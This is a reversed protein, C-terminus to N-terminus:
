IDIPDITAHRQLEFHCLLVAIKRVRANPVANFFPVARYGCRLAGLNIANEGLLTDNVKLGSSKTSVAIYLFSMDISTIRNFEFVELWHPDFGNNRIITKTQRFEKYKPGVLTLSIVPSVADSTSAPNSINQACIVRIRLTANEKIREVIPMARALEYQQQQQESKSTPANQSLQTVSGDDKVNALRPQERMWQPKLVYGSDGNTKFLARNIYYHIDHTQLNLAVCQSGLEWADIPNYNSSDVRRGKPYTRILTSQTTAAAAATFKMWKSFSDESISVINYHKCARLLNICTKINGRKDRPLAHAQVTSVAALRNNAASKRAHKIQLEQQREEMTLNDAGSMNGAGDDDDDSEGDSDSKEKKCKVLIKRILGIPTFEKGGFEMSEIEKATLLQEGFISRMIEVMLTQEVDGVHLELSLIVPYPSVEFAAENIAICVDKFWCSTMLTGGHTVRPGRPDGNGPWCDIEVCRCGERLVKTYMAPDSEGKLQGLTCYTNHSSNIFYHTLPQSM